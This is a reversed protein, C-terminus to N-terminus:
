RIRHGAKGSRRRSAATAVTPRGTGRNSRAATSGNGQDHGIGKHSVKENPDGKRIRLLSARDEVSRQVNESNIKQLMAVELEAARIEDQLAMIQNALARRRRELEAEKRASEQQANTVEIRDQQEQKLRASGILVGAPGVYVDMLRVGESTMRFERVQNSHAMGRSKLLHLTRNREGDQELDCLLLWTDVLSSIASDTHELATGGKTLSTLLGTIGKTKLTDVLRILMSKIEIQSGSMEFASIPDIVVTDPAFDRTAKLTVSLHKELGSLSPRAAHFRLLGKKVWRHLDIGISSMNRMMQEPSEEFLLYLSREGRRCAADVFHAAVSTKGSGATGSVLVSSGRYYGKGGLMTDLAAIGSPVRERSAKHVLNLSTLPIISIGQEDILFPYENTGHASGRYKVVRLRRTSTQDSVRHDLAIVCDSVYEEIGFRTLTGEGGEGTIISTVGREGLWRFLRRLEARIVAPNPLAGSLAEITDLVVRKAGISRIAHDLRIFIGELDYEGTEEIESRDINVHDFLLRGGATLAGVDLGLSAVNVALADSTEEFAMFVGPEGFDRAGRVLFEMAMLTKGSGASGCLLTPRGQPLGGNTIEDLGRIGTAAKPLTTRKPLAKSM